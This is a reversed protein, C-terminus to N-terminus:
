RYPDEQWPRLESLFATPVAFAASLFWILPIYITHAWPRTVDQIIPCDWSIKM